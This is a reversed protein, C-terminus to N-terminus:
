YGLYQSPIQMLQGQTQLIVISLEMGLVEDRKIHSLLIKMNYPLCYQMVGDFYFEEFCQESTM